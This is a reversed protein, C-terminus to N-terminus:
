RSELATGEGDVIIVVSSSPRLTGSKWLKRKKQPPQQPRDKAKDDITLDIFDEVWAPSDYDEGKFVWPM